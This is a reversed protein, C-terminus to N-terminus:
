AKVILDKKLPKLKEEITTHFYYDKNARRQDMRVTFLTICQKEGDNLQWDTRIEVITGNPDQTMRGTDNVRVRDNVFLTPVKFLKISRHAKM